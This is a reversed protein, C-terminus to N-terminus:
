ARKHRYILYIYRILLSLALFRVGEAYHQFFGGILFLSIFICWIKIGRLFQTEKDKKVARYIYLLTYPCFFLIQLNLSVTPHQSFIMVFLLIGILGCILFWFGDFWRFRTNLKSEIATTGLIIAALILMLATPSLPFSSSSTQVGPQVVWGSSAVLKRKTPSGNNLTAREFDNMLNAPLFQRQARDIPLDAKIGLLM